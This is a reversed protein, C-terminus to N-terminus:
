GYTTALSIDCMSLALASSNTFMITSSGLLGFSSTANDYLKFAMTKRLRSWYSSPMFAAFFAM